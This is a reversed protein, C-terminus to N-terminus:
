LSKSRRKLMTTSKSKKFESPTLGTLKKFEKNFSSKSNFGAQYMAELVTIKKDPGKLIDKVEQCRYTNIYDFFNKNFGQNIVQSLAKTGIALQEALHQSTLDPNLYIKEDQMLKELQLKHHDIESQKLNSSAYKETEELAIGSFIMPQNLAKVLVRNIFFFAAILLLILSSYQFIVNGFIPLTNHIMAVVTICTFAKIMFSLWELNIEDISSFKERIISQYLRLTRWGFWLYSLIHIYIILSVLFIWPPLDSADVKKVAELQTGLDIFILHYVLYSTYGLFPILHFADRTRFKFDRYVVGRVYFYLLPGYLLFFGDDVLHLLPIPLVVGSVRITFDLLSIAFVLFLLGLLNNNRKNGRKHTFLYLAVFIFQFAVLFSFLAALNYDM